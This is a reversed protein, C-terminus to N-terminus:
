FSSCCIRHLFALTCRRICPLLTFHYRVSVCPFVPSLWHRTNFRHYRYHTRRKYMRAHTKIWVKPQKAKSQKAKDKENRLSAALRPSCCVCVCVCELWIQFHQGGKERMWESERERKNNDNSNNNNTITITTNYVRQFSIRSFFRIICRWCCFIQLIFTLKWFIYLYPYPEPYAQKLSFIDCCM